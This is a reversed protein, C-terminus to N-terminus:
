IQILFYVIIATPCQNLNGNYKNVISKFYFVFLQKRKEHVNSQTADGIDLYEFLDVNRTNPRSQFVVCVSLLSYVYIYIYAMHLLTIYPGM